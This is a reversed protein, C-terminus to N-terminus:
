FTFVFGASLMTLDEVDSIDFVEYEARIQFSGLSFAAGIGYATDSGDESGLDVGAFSVDADWSIMGLKAFVGIPGLDFGAVAFADWATVDLGFEETLITVSPGGLDVYGAEVGLDILGLEFTYGGFLKWSFDNEDFTFDGIDPDSINAELTSNGISGGFYPGSDALASGSMLLGSALFVALLNRHFTKLTHLM